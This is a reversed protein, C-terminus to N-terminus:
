RFLIGTLWTLFPGRAKTPAPKFMRSIVKYQTQGFLAGILSIAALSGIILRKSTFFTKKALPKPGQNGLVNVQVTPQQVIASQPNTRSSTTIPSAPSASPQQPTAPQASSSASPASTRQEGAPQSSESASHVAPQQQDGTPQTTASLSAAMPSASITSSQQQRVPQASSSASSASTQQDGAPQTTASLNATIPSASTTSPQQEEINEDDKDEQFLMKFAILRKGSPMPSLFSKERQIVVIAPSIKGQQRVIEFGSIYRTPTQSQVARTTSAAGFVEGTIATAISFVGLTILNRKM